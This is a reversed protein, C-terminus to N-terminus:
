RIDYRLFSNVFPVFDHVLISMMKENVRKQRQRKFHFSFANFRFEFSLLVYMQDHNVHSM